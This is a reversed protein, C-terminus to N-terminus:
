SLAAVFARLAALSAPEDLFPPHGRDPVTAAIMDPRRAQMKALTEALLLNSNAGRIAALPLGALADFFPWLDIPPLNIATLFADRLAPDYRNVLGEPTEKTRRQAEALWRDASVHVFGPHVHPYIAALAEYTRAAPNRGIHEAIHALGEADLDPGIDNLCVGTLRQRATAALVMAILGGRSTGLIAFRDIGLHDMLALADTAEQAITYTAAGTWDSHGRGRYDMRIVRIGPLDQAIRDFDSMNRTLGALCLIPKGAGHDDFALRSGDPTLIFQPM